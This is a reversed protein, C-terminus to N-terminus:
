SGCCRCVGATWPVIRLTGARGDGEALPDRALSSPGLVRLVRFVMFKIADNSQTAVAACAVGDGGKCYVAASVDAGGDIHGGVPRM